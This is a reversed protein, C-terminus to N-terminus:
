EEEPLDLKIHVDKLQQETVESPAGMMLDEANQALPFAIVDRIASQGSLLMVIRDVGPAFGGHPPAGFQFANIMGSFKQDVVDKSYGAIEFAKYMIEPLNNRIAGSSIEYGNIVLDYQYAYVDLPDQNELAELGGQPMSFPNHFFDIKGDDSLEYMPYDIIWCMEFIDSKILNFDKALRVRLSGLWPLIDLDNGAALFVVNVGEKLEKKQRIEGIETESVFKHISGKYSDHEIILYALGQGTLDTFYDVLDDLVKRSPMSDLNLVIGRIQHGQDLTNKFVKFETKRFIESFNSIELPIRLDPKDTGYKELADKYKIRPFPAQTFPVSAFQSFIDTFLIENVKFIDEQEVFSMEMDVQYFEGPSRDARAEEDRFCPAIQFYRDFGAVMLLQKFQQPAQPLVYFKGPHKRSPVIFERAGEPSNSTLIPTQIEIFGQRHMNDRIAKIIRSRLIIDKHLVDRRLELFRHKLRINEPANDDEAIQFPLVKAVSLLTISESHVEVEGTALNANILDAGRLRVEGDVQIVSEVRIDEAITGAEGALVLQTIGYHDRLDIFLVGGHDRKRAVWGSLRVIQGQHESRLEACTYTRYISSLASM